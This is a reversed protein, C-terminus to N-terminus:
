CFGSGVVIFNVVVAAARRAAALAEGARAWTKVMVPVRMGRSATATAVSTLSPMVMMVPVRRGVALALMAATSTGM